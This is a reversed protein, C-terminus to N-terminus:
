LEWPLRGRNTDLDLIKEDNIPLDPSLGLAGMTTEYTLREVYWQLEMEHTILPYGKFNFLKLYEQPIKVMNNTRYDNTMLKNYYFVTSNFDKAIIPDNYTYGICTFPVSQENTEEIIPKNEAFNFAAGLPNAVPVSAGCCAIKQIWRRSRDLVLRYIRTQYDITRSAIMEYYPVITGYSVAKIYTLWTSLIANIPDGEINRFTATLSFTNLTSGVHDALAYVENKYGPSSIYLDLTEDPWGTLGTLLNSFVTIFAQKNDTLPHDGEYEVGQKTDLMLKIAHHITQNDETLLPSLRRIGSINRNTLNLYPRTFFTLGQYDVNSIPGISYGLHNIGHLTNGILKDPDGLGTESIALKKRKKTYDKPIVVTTDEEDM